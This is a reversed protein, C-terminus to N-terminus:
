RSAAFTRVFAAADRLDQDTMLKNWGLMKPSLGLATGGDRIVVYIEWDSRSSLLEPTRFDRAPPDTKLTGNGDGTAGHCLACRKAFVAAGRKADGGLKFGPPEPPAAAASLVVIVLAL